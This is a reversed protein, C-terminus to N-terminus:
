GDPEEAALVLAALARKQVKMSPTM